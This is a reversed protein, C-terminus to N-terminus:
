TKRYLKAIACHQQQQEKRRRRRGKKISEQELHVVFYIASFIRFMVVNFRFQLLQLYKIYVVCYLFHILLLAFVCSFSVFLQYTHNCLCCCFHFFTANMKRDQQWCCCITLLLLQISALLWFCHCFCCGCYDVTGTNSDNEAFQRFIDIFHCYLKYLIFNQGDLPWEFCNISFRERVPLVSQQVM